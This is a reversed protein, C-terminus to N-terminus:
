LRRAGDRMPEYPRLWTLIEIRNGDPDAVFFRDAAAINVTDLTMIGAAKLAIRAAALDDVHLCLHRPGLTDAEPKQLLHLYHGGLDYWVAVFDFERPPAIETLGLLEGYFRRARDVNTVILTVHDLHTIRFDAM